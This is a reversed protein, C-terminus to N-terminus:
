SFCFEFHKKLYEKLDEASIVLSNKASSDYIQYILDEPGLITGHTPEEFGVTNGTTECPPSYMIEYEKCMDESLEKDDEPLSGSTVATEHWSNENGHTVSPDSPPM